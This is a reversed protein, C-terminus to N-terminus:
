FTTSRRVETSAGVSFTAMGSELIMSCIWCNIESSAIILSKKKTCVNSSPINCTLFSILRRRRRSSVSASMAEANFNCTNSVNMVGKFSSNPPVSGCRKRCSTVGSVHGVSSSFTMTAMTLNPDKRKSPKTYITPPHLSSSSSSHRLDSSLYLRRDLPILRRTPLMKHPSVKLSSETSKAFLKAYRTRILTPPNPGSSPDGKRRLGSRARREMKGAKLMKISM